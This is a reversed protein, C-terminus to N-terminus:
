RKSEKILRRPELYGDKNKEYGLPRLSGDEKREFSVVEDYEGHGADGHIVVEIGNSLVRLTMPFMQETYEGVKIVPM